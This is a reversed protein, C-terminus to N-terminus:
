PRLLDLIEDHLRGNSSVCAGTTARDDGGLDSWRGGAEEVVLKPAAVDWPALPAYEIMADMSGQAVLVHGWFDGFGRQRRARALLDIVTARADGAWDLGGTCLDGDEIRPVSSVRISEGDRFAGGGRVAWWRTRLAPASVVGLVARGNDELAVLTAFVPVGRSFNKTGDIPDLVWRRSASGTEGEEEGLIADGPFERAIAERLRAEVERDAATVPTGDSKREYPVDVRFHAMARADTDDTWRLVAALEQEYSM